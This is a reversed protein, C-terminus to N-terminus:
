ELDNILLQGVQTRELVAHESQDLAPLCQLRRVGRHRGGKEALFREDV